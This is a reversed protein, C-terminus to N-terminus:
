YGPNPQLMRLLNQQSPNSYSPTGGPMSPGYTGYNPSTVPGPQSQYGGGMPAQHQALLQQLLANQGQGSAYNQFAGNLGSLDPVIQNSPGVGPGLATGLQGGLSSGLAAGQVGGGLGAGIAAGGVSGLVPLLSGLGFKPRTPQLSQQFKLLQEQRQLAQDASMQGLLAQLNQGSLSSVLSSKQRDAEQQGLRLEEQGVGSSRIGAQQINALNQKRSAEAQQALLPNAQSLQQQLLQNLLAQMDEYAM